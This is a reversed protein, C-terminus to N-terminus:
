IETISGNKCTIFYEVEDDKPLFFAIAGSYKIKPIFYSNYLAQLCSKKSFRSGNSLHYDEIANFEFDDQDLVTVCNRLISCYIKQKTFNVLEIKMLYFYGENMNYQKDILEPSDIEKVQIKRFEVLRVRINQDISNDRYCISLMSSSNISDIISFKNM